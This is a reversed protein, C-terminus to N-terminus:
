QKALGRIRELEDRLLPVDASRVTGEMRELTIAELNPCLPLVHEALRWVEEPVPGDHSDLRLARRSPLWAEPSASGGSLHIEIVRDLPLRRLYDRPDFRLNVAMTHVNHLDLLLFHTTGDLVRAIFAPEEMPDGLLFYQATNEFGVRPVVRRMKRLTRRVVAAAEATMPLPLPLALANGDLLTAGLHDTYWLFQFEEHDRRIASLWRRHHASGSPGATGMSVGVGHAIFPKGTQAKLKRFLSHFGNPSVRGDPEERWLTEPTVEFVDARQFLPQAVELFEADPQLTFGVRVARRRM